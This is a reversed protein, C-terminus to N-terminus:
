VVMFRNLKRRQGRCYLCSERGRKQFMLRERPAMPYKHRPDKRCNFWFKYDSTDLVDFPTKPLLYNAIEDMEAVLDPHKDGFSNFGPLVIKDNCYPCEDVGNVVDKIM